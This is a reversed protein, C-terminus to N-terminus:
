SATGTAITRGEAAPSGAGRRRSRNPRRCRQRSFAAPSARIGSRAPRSFRCPRTAGRGSRFWRPRWTATSPSRWRNASSRSRPPPPHHRVRWAQASPPRRSSSRECWRGRGSGSSCRSRRDQAVPSHTPSPSGRRAARAARPPGCRGGSRAYPDGGRGARWCRRGRPRAAGPPAPPRLPPTSRAAPPSRPRERPHASPPACM